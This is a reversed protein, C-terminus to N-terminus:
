SKIAMRGTYDTRSLLPRGGHATFYEEVAGRAGDWHGYDDVILVGGASLRPYLHEMEHRTSTYWDTDLRMLAIESPAQAPLTTEVPGVLFHIRETPYGTKLVVEKVKDLGFVEDAFAAAWPTLGKRVARDFVATARREFRSTDESTPSTMGTFTDCLYVDRDVTGLRQLTSIMALVSGGKWVGCEILAGPIQRDVVYEVADATAVMREISTMTYPQCREVLTREHPALTAEFTATPRMARRALDRGKGYLNVPQAADGHASLPVGGV